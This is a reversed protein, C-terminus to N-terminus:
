KSVQNNPLLNFSGPSTNKSTEDLIKKRFRAVNAKLCKDVIKHASPCNKSVYNLKSFITEFKFFVQYAESFKKTFKFDLSEQSTDSYSNEPMHLSDQYIEMQNPLALM